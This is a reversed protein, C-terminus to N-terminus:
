FRMSAGGTATTGPMPYGPRYAYDSGTLNEGAVFIELGPVLDELRASVKANLLFYSDVRFPVGPFRLNGAYREDVWQADASIRFRSITAVAGGSLTWRPTFPVDEPTTETYAAGAYLGLAAVPEVSLSFEAGRARYSGTNAWGPPPPPPPVFRLADKVDDLFFTVDLKTKSGLNPALGIEFHDM